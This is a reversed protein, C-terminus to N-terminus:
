RIFIVRGPVPLGGSKDGPGFILASGYGYGWPMPELRAAAVREDDADLWAWRYGNWDQAVTLAIRRVEERTAQNIWVLDTAEEGEEGPAPSSDLYVLTSGNPTLIAAGLFDTGLDDATLTDGADDDTADLRKLLVAQGGDTAISAAVLDGGISVRTVAGEGVTPEIFVRETGQDLNAIIVQPYVSDGSHRNRVFVAHREGDLVLGAHLEVTQHELDEPTASGEAVLTPVSGDPRLWWIRGEKEVLLGGQGDGTVLDTEPLDLVLEDQGDRVSDSSAIVLTGSRVPEALTVGLPHEPDAITTSTPRISTSSTTTQPVAPEPKRLFYLPTAVALVVVATAAVALWPSSRRGDEVPRLKIEASREAALTRLTTGLRALEDDLNPM